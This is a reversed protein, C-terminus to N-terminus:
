SREAIGLPAAGSRCQIRTLAITGLAQDSCQLFNKSIAAFSVDYTERGGLTYLYRHLRLERLFFSLPSAISM